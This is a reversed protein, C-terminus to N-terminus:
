QKIELRAAEPDMVNMKFVASLDAMSLFEKPEVGLEEGYVHRFMREVQYRNPGLLELRLDIRGNRILAEDLAELNNTTMVTILGHPTGVGDLANLLGALTPGSDEQKREMSKTFIDIDELLLISKSQIAQVSSMLAQDNPVSSLPLNYLHMSYKDALATVLSTKGNGPPGYFLYGRHWPMGINNYHEENEFFNDLDALLEEKQGEPLFVSDIDRHQYKIGDWGYTARSYLYIDRDKFKFEETLEELKRHLADIGAETYSSFYITDALMAEMDEMDGVIGGKRATPKEISVKLVHGDLNVKVTGGGDYFRKIGAYKSEFKVKRPDTEMDLWKMMAEYVFATSDVSAVFLKKTEYSEKWESAMRVVLNVTQVASYLASIKTANKKIM